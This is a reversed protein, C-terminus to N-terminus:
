FVFAPWWFFKNFFVVEFFGFGVFGVFGMFGPESLIEIEVVINLFNISLGTKAVTIEM